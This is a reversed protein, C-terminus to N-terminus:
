TDKREGKLCFRGPSVQLALAEMCLQMLCPIIQINRYKAPLKMRIEEPTQPTFDLAALVAALEPSLGKPVEPGKEAAKKRKKKGTEEVKGGGANGKKKEWLQWIEELFTEPSLLIGAGQKILNNCGDSLRDTIRGPVVYVEKGQELAMDVTILTGSKLRAEIVVVADALGSVIRNRPPFNQPRAPTGIPYTSLIAGTKLLQRYISKNQAPYCIDVGSGLIGFSRGGKEMAAAQSIGDIGRAMGSVVTVGNRGLRSGLEKAVYKGYESCDRAGIVAVAPADAGSLTGRVFLGFPADPIERLRQPYGEDGITLLSIGEERMKHYETEPRWAATYEALYQVQRPSLVQGWKEKSALYVAEPSGCLASLRHLQANSIYPFNCLWCAYIKERERWDKEGENERKQEEKWEEKQGEKQEEKWEEKWSNGTQEKKQM